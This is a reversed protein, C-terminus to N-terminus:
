KAQQHCNVCVVKEEKFGPPISHDPVDPVRKANNAGTAHCVLCETKDIHDAPIPAAPKITPLATASSAPQTAKATPTPLPTPAPTPSSACASAIGALAMVILAVFFKQYM